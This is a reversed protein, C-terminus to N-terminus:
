ESYWNGHSRIAIVGVVVIFGILFTFFASILLWGSSDLQVSSDAEPKAHNSTSGGQVQTSTEIAMVLGITRSELDKLTFLGTVNFGNVSLGSCASVVLLVAIM